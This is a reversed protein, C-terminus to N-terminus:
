VFVGTQVAHCSLVASNLMLAVNFSQISAFMDRAFRNSGATHISIVVHLSTAIRNPFVIM